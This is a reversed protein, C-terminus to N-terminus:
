KMWTHPTTRGPDQTIMSGYLEGIEDTFKDMPFREIASERAARSMRRYTLEDTLLTTIADSMAHIDRPPVLLGTRGSVVTEMLGGVTTGVVPKGLIAAELATLSFGETDVSPVVVVDVGAIVDLARQNEVSGLYDVAHVLDLATCLDSLGGGEPGAGALRIRLGPIHQRALALAQIGYSLGKEATFRSVIGVSPSTPRWPTVDRIPDPVANPILLPAQIGPIHDMISRRVAASVAIVYKGEMLRQRLSQPESGDLLGHVHSVVPIGQAGAIAAAPHAPLSSQHIHVIRPQSAAFVERTDEFLQSLATFAKLRSASGDQPEPNNIADDIGSGIRYVPSNDSPRPSELGPNASQALIASTFGYRQQVHTSLAHVLTQIGGQDPLYGPVVHLVDVPRRSLPARRPRTAQTAMSSPHM